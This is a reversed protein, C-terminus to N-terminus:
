PPPRAEDEERPSPLEGHNSSPSSTARYTDAHLASAGSNGTESSDNRKQPESGPPAPEEPEKAQCDKGEEAFFDTIAYGSRRHLDLYLQNIIDVGPHEPPSASM